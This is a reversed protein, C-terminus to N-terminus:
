SIYIGYALDKTQIVVICRIHNFDLLFITPMQSGLKAHKGNSCIVDVIKLMLMRRFKSINAHQM